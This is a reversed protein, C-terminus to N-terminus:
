SFVHSALAFLVTSRLRFLFNTFDSPNRGTKWSKREALWIYLRADINLMNRKKRRWKNAFQCCLVGFGAVVEAEAETDAEVM